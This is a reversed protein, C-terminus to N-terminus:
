VTPSVTLSEGGQEAADSQAEDNTDFFGLELAPEPMPGYLEDAAAELAATEVSLSPKFFSSAEMAPEPLEGFEEDIESGAAVDLNLQLTAAKAQSKSRMSPTALDPEPDLEPVTSPGAAASMGFPTLLNGSSATAAAEEADRMADLQNCCDAVNPREAAEATWCSAMVSTYEAPLGSEEAVALPLRLGEM